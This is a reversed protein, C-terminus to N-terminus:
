KGQPKNIRFPKPPSPKPADPRRQMVNPRMGKLEDMSKLPKNSPSKAM